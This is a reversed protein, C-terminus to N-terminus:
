ENGTGEEPVEEAVEDVEDAPAATADVVDSPAPALSGALHDLARNLVRLAGALEMRLRDGDVAPAKERVDDRVDTAKDRVDSAKGRVDPVRDSALAEDLEGRLDGMGRCLDSKFTEAEPTSAAARLAAALHLGVGRFEDVVSSDQAEEGNEEAVDQVTEAAEEVAEQATTEDTMLKM